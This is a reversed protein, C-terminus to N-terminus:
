RLTRRASLIEIEVIAGAEEMRLGALVRAKRAIGGGVNLLDKAHFQLKM